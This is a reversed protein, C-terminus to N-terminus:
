INIFENLKMTSKDAGYDQKWRWTFQKVHNVASSKYTIYIMWGSQVQYFGYSVLNWRVQKGKWVSDSPLHTSFGDLELGSAKLWEFFSNEGQSREKANQLKNIHYEFM